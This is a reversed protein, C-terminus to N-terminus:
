GLAKVDDLFCGLLGAGVLALCQGLWLFNGLRLDELVDRGKGLLHNGLHLLGNNIVVELEKTFEHEVGVTFTELALNVQLPVLLFSRLHLSSGWM